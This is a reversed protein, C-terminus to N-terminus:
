GENITRIIKNLDDLFQKSPRVPVTQESGDPMKIKVEGLVLHQNLLSLDPM